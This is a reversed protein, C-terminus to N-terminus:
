KKDYKKTFELLMDLKRNQEEIITAQKLMVKELEKIMGCSAKMLMLDMESIEAIEDVSNVMMMNVVEEIKSNLKKTAEVM